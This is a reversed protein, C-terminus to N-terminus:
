MNTHFNTSFSWFPVHQFTSLHSVFVWSSFGESCASFPPPEIDDQCAWDVDNFKNVYIFATSSSKGWLSVSSKGYRKWTPWGQGSAKERWKGKKKDHFIILAHMGRLKDMKWKYNLDGTRMQIQKVVNMAEMMNM